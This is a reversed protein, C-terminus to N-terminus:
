PCCGLIGFFSLKTHEIDKFVCFCNLLMTLHMKYTLKMESSYKLADSVTTHPTAEDIINSPLLLTYFININLKGNECVVKYLIFIM